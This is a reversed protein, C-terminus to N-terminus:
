EDILGQAETAKMLAPATDPTFNLIIGGGEGAAQYLQRLRTNADTM